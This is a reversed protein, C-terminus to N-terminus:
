QRVDVFLLEQGAPCVFFVEIDARDHPALELNIQGVAVLM